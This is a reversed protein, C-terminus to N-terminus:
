KTHEHCAGDSPGLAPDNDMPTWGFGVHDPHRDEQVSHRSEPDDPWLTSSKVVANPAFDLVLINGKQVIFFLDRRLEDLFSTTNIVFGNLDYGIIDGNAQILM